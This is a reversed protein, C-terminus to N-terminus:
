KGNLFIALAAVDQLLGCIATTLLAEQRDMSFLMWFGAFYILFMVQIAVLFGSVDYHSMAVIWAGCSWAFIAMASLKLVAPGLLGFDVSLIKSVITVGGLMLAITLIIQLAAVTLGGGFSAGSIRRDFQIEVLRMALGLLLLVGPGVVDRSVVFEASSPDVMVKPIQRQPYGEFTSRAATAAVEALDYSETDPPNESLAPALFVNGCPCAVKRRAVQRNLAFRAGCASCAFSQVGTESMARPLAFVSAEIPSDLM